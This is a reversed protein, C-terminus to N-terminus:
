RREFSDAFVRAGQPAAASPAAWFGGQLRYRGARLTGAEAQGASGHLRYRPAASTASPSVHARELRYRGGEPAGSVPAAVAALLAFLCLPRCGGHLRFSRNM